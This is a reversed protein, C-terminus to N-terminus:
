EDSRHMLRARLLNSAAVADSPLDTRDKWLGIAPHNAPNQNFAPSDPLPTVEVRTGDLPKEGELIVVGNNVVGHYTM